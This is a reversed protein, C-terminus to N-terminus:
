ARMVRDLAAHFERRCEMARQEAKQLEIQWHQADDLAQQTPPKKPPMPECDMWPECKM